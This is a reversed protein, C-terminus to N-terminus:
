SKNPIGQGQPLPLEIGGHNGGLDTGSLVADIVFSGPNYDHKEIYHEVGVPCRLELGQYGILYSGNFTKTDPGPSHPTNLRELWEQYSKAARVTKFLNEGKQKNLCIQCTHHGMHYMCTKLTKLRDVVKRKLDLDKWGCKSVEGELWGWSYRKHLSEKTDYDINSGDEIFM